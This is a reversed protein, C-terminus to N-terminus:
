AGGELLYQCVASDRVLIVHEGSLQLICLGDLMPLRKVLGRVESLVKETSADSRLTGCNVAAMDTKSVARKTRMMHSSTEINKEKM